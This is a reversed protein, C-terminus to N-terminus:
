RKAFRGDSLDLPWAFPPDMAKAFVACLRCMLVCVSVVLVCAIWGGVWAVCGACVCVCLCPVFPAKVLQSRAQSGRQRCTTRGMCARESTNPVAASSLLSHAESTCMSTLSQVTACDACPRRERQHIAQTTIVGRRERERERHISLWVFL